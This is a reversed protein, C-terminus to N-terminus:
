EACDSLHEPVSRWGHPQMVPAGAILWTQRGYPLGRRKLDAAIEKWPEGSLRRVSVEALLAPTIASPRPM